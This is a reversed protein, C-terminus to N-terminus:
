ENDGYFKMLYKLADEGTQLGLEQVLQHGGTEYIIMEIRSSNKMMDKMEYALDVPVVNNKKGWMILTPSKIQSLGEDINGSVYQNVRAIQADRQGERLLLDHWRVVLEDTVNNPDGFGGKLLSETVIKPTIHAIIEFPKPLTVPESRGRVRPNLAGPSVLILNDIKEPNQSAYHLSTTGGLSAGAISLTDIKLENLFNELLFVTRQMSYDNSPDAETLGHGPIDIRIVRFHKKLQDVWPNWDILNAYNAHLLLLDPGTGDIAFHINVGDIEIFDSSELLYKAEISEKSIDSPYRIDLKIMSYFLLVIGLILAIAIKILFKVFQYM